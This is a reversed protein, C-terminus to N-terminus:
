RYRYCGMEEEGQWFSSGRGRWRVILAIYTSISVSDWTQLSVKMNVERKVGARVKVEMGMEVETKMKMRMKMKVRM